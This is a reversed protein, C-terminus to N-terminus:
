GPRPPTRRPQRVGKQAKVTVTESACTGDLSVELRLDSTDIPADFAVAGRVAVGWTQDRGRRRLTVRRLDGFSGHWRFLGREPRSTTWGPDDAPIMLELPRGAGTIRVRFDHRPPDLDSDADAGAHLRSRLVLGRGLGLHSTVIGDAVCAACACDAGCGGFCGGVDDGDCTEGSERVGNGCVPPPGHFTTVTVQYGLPVPGRQVLLHWTGSAPAVVTCAGASRGGARCDFAADTPAEGAALLMVISARPPDNANLAVRLETTGPPVVFTHREAALTAGLQGTIAFSHAGDSEVAPVGSCTTRDLDAGAVGRVWARYATVGTDFSHDVPECTPNNGGSTLGALAMTEGDEVFLPGGSDGSCTNSQAGTYEWCLATAPLNPPCGGITVAGQRKLGATRDAGGSTGFGAIVGPTGHAPRRGALPVPTIGSVPEALTLVALDARAPFHYDPHVAIRSVGVFGAHQFFVRYSGASPARRGRCDGGDGECVCHAATLFTRCGILTGSCTFRATAPDSGVLLAGTAPLASTLTGNVIAATDAPADRTALLLTGALGLARVLRSAGGM